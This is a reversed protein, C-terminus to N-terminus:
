SGELFTIDPQSTIVGSNQIKMREPSNIFTTFIKKSPATDIVYAAGPDDIIEVFNSTYEQQSVSRSLQVLCGSGSM